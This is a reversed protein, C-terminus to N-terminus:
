QGSNNLDTLHSIYSPLPFFLGPLSISGVGTEIRSRSGSKPIGFM